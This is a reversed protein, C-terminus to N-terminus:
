IEYTRWLQIKSELNEKIVMSHTEDQMITEIHHRISLEFIKTIAPLVSIPRTKDIKPHRSGDKSILIMKSKIFYLPVKGEKLYKQFHEELRKCMKSRIIKPKYWEANIEDVGAAKGIAVKEIAEKVRLSPINNETEIEIKSNYGSYLTEYYEKIIKTKKEDMLVISDKTVGAAM